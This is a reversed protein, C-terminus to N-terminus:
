RQMVDAGADLLMKIMEVAAGRREAVAATCAAMILPPCGDCATALRAKAAILLRV